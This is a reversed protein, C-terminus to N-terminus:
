DLELIEDDSIPPPIAGPRKVARTQATKKAQEAEASAAGGPLPPPIPRPKPAARLGPQKVAPPKAKATQSNSPIRTKPQPTSAAKPQSRVQPQPAAIPPPSSETPRRPRQASPPEPRSEVAAKPKERVDAAPSNVMSFAAGDGTRKQELQELQSVMNEQRVIETHAERGSTVDKASVHVRAQSDYSIMVAIESGEPLKPPLNDVVCEGLKAPPKDDSTGSEVIQLFVRKQNEAVTGFHHTISTPLPTNAPILYHPVRKGTKMDRIMIGLGRANVSRQKVKALRSTAEENLISKAFKKNTLLMGAYYTAGHAISQDPSLATNLTTGSMEKLRTRIMPMRSSGGTSLVVDVHAWGMKNDRLLRKTIDNTRQVLAKTLKEFQTQEVQYTKRNGAHQCTIAAKPRVTLSRKTQEAELTLFQLSEPDSRPDDGFEKAFQGAIADRLTNSWDVGGLELDGSSAIVSVENKQYRVLSLDFTGGGLDYVLIKQEDALETFWLGETGLVYCLAAAVPENIIDVRQLGARHGAEITAH